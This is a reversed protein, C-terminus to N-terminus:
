ESGEKLSHVLLLGYGAAGDYHTGCRDHAYGHRYVVNPEDAICRDGCGPCTWKIYLKATPIRHLTQDILQIINELPRDTPEHDPM